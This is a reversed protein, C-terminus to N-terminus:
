EKKFKVRITTNKQFNIVKEYPIYGEKKVRLNHKGFPLRIDLRTSGYDKNNIYVKDNYVNSRVTLIGHTAQESFIIKGNKIVSGKGHLHVFGINEFFMFCLPENQDGKFIHDKFNINGIFRWISYNGFPQVPGRGFSGFGVPYLIKDKPYLAQFTVLEPDHDSQKVTISGTDGEIEPQIENIFFHKGVGLYYIKWIIIDEYAQKATMIDKAKPSKKIYTLLETLTNPLKNFDEHKLVSEEILKKIRLEIRKAYNTCRFKKIFSVMKDINEVDTEFELAEFDPQAIKELRDKMLHEGATGEFEKVYLVMKDIDNESLLDNFRDISFKDLRDKILKAYGTDQYKQFYDKLIDFDTGRELLHFEKDAPELEILRKAIRESFCSTPFKELFNNYSKITDILKAEEYYTILNIINHADSVFLGEPFSKIYDQYLSTTQSIKIKDWLVIDELRKKANPIFDSKPHDLIYKEYAEKTATEEALQFAKKSNDCSNFSLIIIIIFLLITKIKM